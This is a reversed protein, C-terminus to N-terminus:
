SLQPPRLLETRLEIEARAVENGGRERQRLFAVGALSVVRWGERVEVEAGNHEGCGCIYVRM